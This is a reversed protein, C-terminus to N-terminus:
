TCSDTLNAGAMRDGCVVRAWSDRVDNLTVNVENVFGLRALNGLEDSAVYDMDVLARAEGETRRVISFEKTGSISWRVEVDVVVNKLFLETAVLVTSSSLLSEIMITIKNAFTFHLVTKDYRKSLRAVTM